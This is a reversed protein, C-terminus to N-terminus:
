RWAHATGRRVAGATSLRFVGLSQFWAYNFRSRSGWNRGPLSYKRSALIALREHVYSDITAFKRASNGYRFYAHWGRLTRNLRTVVTGILAGTFRRDTVERIKTRVSRMARTSPWRQLFWRGRWKWSEVKHHHFGLFDFGEKGRTLCVTRTKDPNLQLGLRALVAEVRRRAELVRPRSACLVVLDDAYRVLVGLSQGSRAWEQDLLNLAVNSLLPSIPSGQPTGSVPDTVVGDELVGARLWSRLLKLLDRDSVRREILSMLAEHSIQGFCDSIDADLVWDAGRNAEVRIAECAQHASRRPRFGFSCPSFDAEFVPELVRRAAAMVVRDRVTPIGLPRTKGPQGAKPIRVRRLPAPRYTKTRLAAAIEDLFLGVGSQEVADITMGDVGPAGRNVRVDIWAEWLIDSRAVHCYLAHFRRSPDQKASRYLVRQLARPADVGETHRIASASLASM